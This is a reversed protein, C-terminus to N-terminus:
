ASYSPRSQVTRLMRREEDTASKPAWGTVGEMQIWSREGAAHSRVLIQAVRMMDFATCPGVEAIASADGGSLPGGRWSSVVETKPRGGFRDPYTVRVSTPLAPLTLYTRGLPTHLGKLAPELDKAGRLSISLTASLDDRVWYVVKLAPSVRFRLNIASCDSKPPMWTEAFFPNLQLSPQLQRRLPLQKGAQIVDKPNSFTATMLRPLSKIASRFGHCVDQLLFLQDPPCHRLIKELLEVIGFVRQPGNRLQTDRVVAVKMSLDEVRAQMVGAQQELHLVRMRLAENETALVANNAEMRAMREMLEMLIDGQGSSTDDKRNSPVDVSAM